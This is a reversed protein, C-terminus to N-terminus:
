AAEKHGRRRPAPLVPRSRLYANFESELCGVVGPSFERQPPYDPDDKVKRWVTHRSCSLLRAQEAQRLVKEPM